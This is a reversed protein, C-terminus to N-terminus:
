EIDIRLPTTDLVVPLVEIVIECREWYVRPDTHYPLTLAAELKRVYGGSERRRGVLSVHLGAVNNRDFGGCPVRFQRKGGAIDLVLIEPRVIFRPQVGSDPPPVGGVVRGGGSSSSSWILGNQIDPRVRLNVTPMNDQVTWTLMLSQAIRWAFDRCAGVIDYCM